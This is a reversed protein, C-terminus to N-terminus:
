PSISSSGLAVGAGGPQNQGSTPKQLFQPLNTNAFLSLNPRRGAEDIQQQMSKDRTSGIAGPTNTSARRWLTKGDYDIRLSSTYESITFSGAFMYRVQKSKPGTIEAVLRVPASPNSRCNMKALQQQLGSQVESRYQGPVKSVDIAVDVGARWVFLGPDNRANELASLAESTPITAHLLKGGSKGLSAVLPRDMLMAAANIGKYQWVKIGSGYEFLLSKGLLVFDDHPMLIPERLNADTVPGDYLVEGNEVNWVMLKSHTTAAFRKGSPSFSTKIWYNMGPAAKVVAPAKSELPVMGVIDGGCIGLMKRDRSMTPQCAGHYNFRALPQRTEFNWIVGDGSQSLTILRGGNGFQAFRVVKEKDKGERTAYPKWLDIPTAKGGSFRLTGLQGAEGDKETLNSVVVRQGDDHIARATWLGDGQHIGLSKGSDLDILVMRTVQSKGGPKSYNYTVVARRAPENVAVRNLKDWFDNTKPITARRVQFTQPPLDRLKLNWDAGVEIPITHSAAQYDVDFNRPGGPSAPATAPATAATPATAPAPAAGAPVPTFPSAEVPQFPNASMASRAFAQDKESLKDLPIQMKQGSSRELIVLDGEIKILKAEIQFKGTADSWTRTEQAQGVAAFLLGLLLPAFRPSLIRRLNMKENRVKADNQPLFAVM